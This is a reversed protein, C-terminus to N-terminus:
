KQPGIPPVEIIKGGVYQFARINVTKMVSGGGGSCQLTYTVDRDVSAIATGGTPDVTGINPSITCSSANSCSWTLTTNRPPPVVVRDPAASFTCSPPTTVGSTCASGIPSCANAGSGAVQACANNICALHSGGGGSSCSSGVGACQSTGAGAVSTCSNNICVLHTQTVCAAGPSLCLNAGAGPVSACANNVCELHSSATGCSQGAVCQDAGAGNIAACANNVCALHTQPPQQVCSYLVSAWWGPFGSQVQCGEGFERYCNGNTSDWECAEANNDKCMQNCADASPEFLPARESYNACSRVASNAAMGGCDGSGGGCANGINQCGDTNPGLGDVNACANNVCGLHTSTPSGVTVPQIVETPPGDGGPGLAHIEYTGASPVNASGNAGLVNGSGDRLESSVMNEGTWSVQQGNVNPDDIHVRRGNVTFDGFARVSDARVHFHAYWANSLNGLDFNSTWTLTCSTDVPGDGNWPCDGSFLPPWIKGSFLWTNCYVFGQPGGICMDITLNADDIDEWHTITMNVKTQFAQYNSDTIPVLFDCDQVGSSGDCLQGSLTNDGGFAPLNATSAHALAFPLAIFSAAALIFLFTYSTKSM